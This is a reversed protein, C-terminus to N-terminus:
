TLKTGTYGKMAPETLGPFRVIKQDRHEVECNAFVEITVIGLISIM